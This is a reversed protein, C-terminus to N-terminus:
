KCTRRPPGAGVGGLSGDYDGQPRGEVIAAGGGTYIATRKNVGIGEDGRATEGETSVTYKTGNVTIARVALTLLAAGWMHAAGSAVAITAAVLSLLVSQIVLLWVGAVLGRMAVSALAVALLAIALGDVVGSAVTM